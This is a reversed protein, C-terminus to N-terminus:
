PLYPRTLNEHGDGTVIIDDEIRVGGFPILEEILKWNFYDKEPKSKWPELLMPIFYIGPEVTVVNGEKVIRKFRIGPDAKQDPSLSGEPNLQSGGIDHVQLGLLHGLSHPMFIKGLKKERAEDDSVGKLVEIEKLIEVVFDQAVQNLELFSKGVKVMDCLKLQVASMKTLMAKFTENKGAFYSRTIDSCYGRYRVGADILFSDGKVKDRKGTYHLFASKEDLAIIPEYAAEHAEIRCASLFDHYIDLESKGRAFAQKAARHGDAAIENAKLICQKEYDTKFSRQWDLRKVLPEPNLILNDPLGEETPGVYAFKGLSKLESVIQDRTTFSRAKLAEPWFDSKYDAPEHWFDDPSFFLVEPNEGKKFVLFHGPDRAPCWHSFHPTPRFPVHVDDQYYLEAKGSGIVLGDFGEVELSNATAETLKRLHDKYLDLM